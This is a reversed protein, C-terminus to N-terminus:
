DTSALRAAESLAGYLGVHENMVVKVPITELLAQFRGKAIFARMFAGDTLKAAIKPAIGGAIYVGGHALTVLAMNGAFAGYASVFVALTREALPDLGALAFETIAEGADREKLAQLLAPSPKGVGTDKLFGFIRPLGPGSVVREYSVRGFARRLYVLLDDQLQDVPAFGCHGAESAQVRYRGDDWSLLGVGLGTGAGVVVRPAREVEKGPQLTLLDEGELLAIGLGAAAFDNIVAVRRFGFHRALQAEDIQWPLNTLRARGGQVPGAVALCVGGIANVHPRVEPAALFTELVRELTAHSRSPYAHQAIPTSRNEEFRALAVKVHTGGVDAALAYTEKAAM